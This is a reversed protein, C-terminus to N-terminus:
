LDNTSQILQSMVGTPAGLNQNIPAPAAAPAAVPALAAEAM